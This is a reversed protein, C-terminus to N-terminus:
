LSFLALNELKVQFILSKLLNNGSSVAIHILARKHAHSLVKFYINNLLSLSTHEGHSVRM